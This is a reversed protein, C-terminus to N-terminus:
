ASPSVLSLIRNWKLTKGCPKWSEQLTPPRQEHGLACRTCAQLARLGWISERFGTFRKFWVRIQASPTRSWLARSDTNGQADGKAGCTQLTEPVESHQKKGGAKMFGIGRSSIPRERSGMSPSIARVEKILTEKLFSLNRVRFKCIITNRREQFFYM